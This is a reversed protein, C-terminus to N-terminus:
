GREIAIFTPTPQFQTLDLVSISGGEATEQTKTFGLKQYHAAVMGNKPTPVYEGVVSGAGLRLAEAAVVNLCAEEVQRGLVRCSMLWTDIHLATGVADLQGIIIAIIGNDGFRDILRFNLAFGSQSEMAQVVAAETYRRTTLNFQNTKNILQHTRQLSIRDFPQWVLRMDLSRLYGEMDAGDGRFQEREKNARYLENRERDESTVVTAEFYGARGLLGPILAPDDPVEPVAVMPLEKRVLNREFPNDDVFVLADLGINLEAAIRRLNTAKDDWNAVFSTIDQRRLLMEPHKDFVEVANAEDNKSCVALIVGRRSQELAYEQLAVFGEGAASGQGLVIGELGDDGIVGGWLTNDLDLVLAKSVRGRGNGLLRAVAEGYVPAAVPSVDQKSRHWLAEDHWASLGDQEALADIAVIHAGAKDALDRLLGNVRGVYNARSGPLRHENNGILRPFPNLVTQQLIVCGLNDRLKGWFGALREGFAALEADVAAAGADARVGACVHRADFSFLVADPKFTYLASSTDLIEQQYQGFEAHYIEIWLNRRLGAVRIAASLHNATCSSVIALRLVQANSGAPPATWIQRLVTDVANTEVFNLSLNSIGVIDEWLPSSSNKIKMLRPRWGEASELWDLKINIANM